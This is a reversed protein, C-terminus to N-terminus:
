TSDHDGPEQRKATRKVHKMIRSIRTNDVPVILRLDERRIGARACELIMLDQLVGLISHLEQQIPDSTAAPRRM